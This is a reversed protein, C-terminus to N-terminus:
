KSSLIISKWMGWQKLTAMLVSKGQSGNSLIIMGSKHKFDLMFGSEWGDNSGAHGKVTIKGFPFIMYGLGYRGKTISNSTRMEELSKETLVSNEKLSAEAFKILDNLTTHLGAAAQATFRELKIENGNEDYPKASHELTHNNIIFNTHKMGLPTFIEKQMYSAFSEGSIEEILLQLITYGGGSYKFKTQPEIIIEVPENAKASGNEGDLSEVLSPMKENPQFGPYGHVSLGATHSLLSRITVKNNDFSSKQLRWKTIYKEIPADLDIKGSEVLKMIGWATFMKSTSGINFGTQSAVKIKNNLDAFGIGKKYIVKGNDIVAVAIGPVNKEKLRIPIEKDLSESLNKIANRDTKQAFTQFYSLACLIIFTFTIFKKMEQFNKYNIITLDILMIVTIENKIIFM